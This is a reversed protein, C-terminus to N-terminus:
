RRGRLESSVGWIGLWGRQVMREVSVPWVHRAPVAPSAKKKARGGARGKGRKSPKRSGM